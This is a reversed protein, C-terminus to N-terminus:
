DGVSTLWAESLAWRDRLVKSRMLWKGDRFVLDYDEQLCALLANFQVRDMAAPGCARRMAKEAAGNRSSVIAKLMRTAAPKMDKPDLWM